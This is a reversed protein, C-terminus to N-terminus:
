FTWRRNALFNWFLVIITAAVQAAFYHFGFVKAGVAMIAGNLAFGVAHVLAFRFM